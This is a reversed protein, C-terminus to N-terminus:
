ELGHDNDEGKRHFFWAALVPIAIGVVIIALVVWISSGSQAAATAAPVTASNTAVATAATKTAPSASGMVKKQAAVYDEVPAPIPKGAEHAAQAKLFPIAMPGRWFADNMVTNETIGSVRQKVYLIYSPVNNGGSWIYIADAFRKNKYKPSSRWLDLQACIGQVWTDFIAIKNGHGGGGQGTGDSLYTWRQSGWKTAVPGPWMAGPNKFRIAAPEM